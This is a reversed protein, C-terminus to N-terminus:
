PTLQLMYFCSGDGSDTEPLIYGIRQIGYGGGAALEDGTMLAGDAPQVYISRKNATGGPEAVSYFGWCPGWTQGWYYEDLVTNILPVCVATRYGASGSPTPDLGFRKVNSYINKHILVGGGTAVMQYAIPDYLSLVVQGAVVAGTALNSRIRHIQNYYGAPRHWLLWGDEYDNAQVGGLTIAVETSLAAVLTPLIVETHTAYHGNGHLRLGSDYTYGSKCYRFVREDRAYRM